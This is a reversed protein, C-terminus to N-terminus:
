PRREASATAVAAQFARMLAHDKIGPACEVGSSVDVVDPALAAIAEGVNDPRLGGALVLARGRRVRAVGPALQAWDLPQGSGGLTGAVRADLVVAEAADFLEDLGAPIEGGLRVM